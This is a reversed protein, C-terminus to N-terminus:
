QTKIHQNENIIETVKNRLGYFMLIHIFYAMGAWIYSFWLLCVLVSFDFIIDIYIPVSFGKKVMTKVAEDSLSFLSIVGLSWVVFVAVNEAGSVGRVLGFYLFTAFIGNWLAWKLIRM